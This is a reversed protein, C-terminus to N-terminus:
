LSTKQPCHPQLIFQLALAFIAFSILLPLVLFQWNIMPPATSEILLTPSNTPDNISWLITSNQTTNKSALRSESIGKSGESSAISREQWWLSIKTFPYSYQSLLANDVPKFLILYGNESGLWIKQRFVIYLNNSEPDFAWTSNEIKIYKVKPIKQNSYQYSSVHEGRSTQIELLPFEIGSGQATLHAALKLLGRDGHELMRLSEISVKFNFADQAWRQEITSLIHKYHDTSSTKHLDDARQNINHILWTSICSWIIAFLFLLFFHQRTFLQRSYISSFM